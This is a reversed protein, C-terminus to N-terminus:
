SWYIIVKDGIRVDGCVISGPALHCHDGVTADHEVIARTNVICNRGVVAGANVVAGWVVLTGDGITATSSLFAGPSCIPPLALGNATIRAFLSERVAVGPIPGFAIHFAADTRNEDIWDDGGLRALGLRQPEGERTLVGLPAFGAQLATDLVVRAHGGAGVLILSRHQDNM